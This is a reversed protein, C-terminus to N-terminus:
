ADISMSAPPPLGLATPLVSAPETEAALDVVVAAAPAPVAPVPDVAPSAPPATEAHATAKDASLEAMSFSMGAAASGDISEFQSVQNASAEHLHRKAMAAGVKADSAPNGHLDLVRCAALAGSDVIDALSAMAKDGIANDRLDLSQLNVALARAKDLADPGAPHTGAANPAAVSDVASSRILHGECSSIRREIKPGTTSRSTILNGTGRKPHVLEMRVELRDPLGGDPLRLKHLSTSAYKHEEGNEFRVVFLKNKGNPWSGVLAECLSAVGNNTISNGLLYAQPRRNKTAQALLARGRARRRPRRECRPARRLQRM